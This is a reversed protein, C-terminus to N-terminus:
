RLCGSRDSRIVLQRWSDRNMDATGKPDWDELADCEENAALKVQTWIRRARQLAVQSHDGAVSARFPQVLVPAAVPSTRLLHAIPASILCLAAGGIAQGRAAAKM